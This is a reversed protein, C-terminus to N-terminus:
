LNRSKNRKLRKRKEEDAGENEPLKGPGKSSRKNYERENENEEGPIYVRGKTTKIDINDQFKNDFYDVIKAYTFDKRSLSSGKFRHEKYEFVIGNKASNIETRINKSSLNKIFDELNKSEKLAEKVLSEAEQKLTVDGKSNLRQKLEEYSLDFFKENDKSVLATRTLSYKKELAIIVERSKRKEFSIHTNKGEYNIKNVVIHVHKHDTDNHLFAVYQNNKYGIDNLYEKVIKRIDNKSVEDESAFSLMLHKVNRSVRTNLESMLLFETTLENISEGFMNKDIIESTERELYNLLGSVYSGTIVKGIL